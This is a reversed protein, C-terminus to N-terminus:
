KLVNIKVKFEKNDIAELHKKPAEVTLVGNSNLSSTVENPQCREPLAYRRSFTRSVWGHKDEKEEHKGEIIIHDDTTKVVIEEPKFHSCDLKVTFKNEDSVIESVGGRQRGFAPVIWNDSDNIDLGFNQNRITQPWDWVDWYNRGCRHPHPYLAM